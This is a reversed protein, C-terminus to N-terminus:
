VALGEIRGYAHLTELAQRTLVGRWAVEAARWAQADVASWDWFPAWGGDEAQGDIMTALSAEVLDAVPPSAGPRVRPVLDLPSAHPDEPDFAARTARMLAEAPARVASPTEDTELLRMLAKIDYAGDLRDAASLAELLAAEARAIVAAPAVSRYAYLDGLLEASPNFRFGNWRAALDEDWDWWFAHPTLGVDPTIIPWVGRDWDFTAGLWGIAARVMPHDAPAGLQRLLQLGVSTVIATSAPTTLDPELGHGFGGDANQYTALSDLVREADAKDFGHRLMAKDLDRGRAEVFARAREYAARTLFAAM